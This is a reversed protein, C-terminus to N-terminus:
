DPIGSRAGAGREVVVDAGAAKLKKVTEPTAAVRPEGADSEAPGAVKM